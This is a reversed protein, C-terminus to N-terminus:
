RLGCKAVIPSVLDNARDAADNSADWHRLNVEHLSDIQAAIWNDIPVAVATPTVPSLQTKLYEISAVALRKEDTRANRAEPSSGDPAAIAARLKGAAAMARASQDWATCAATKAAQVDAATYQAPPAPVVTVIHQAPKVPQSLALATTVAAGAAIVFAAGAM